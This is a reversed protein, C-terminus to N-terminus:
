DDIMITLQNRWIEWARTVAGTGPFLHRALVLETWASKEETLAIPPGWTHEASERLSVEVAGSMWFRVLITRQKNVWLRYSM